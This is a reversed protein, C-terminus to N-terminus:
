VMEELQAVSRGDVSWLEFIFDAEVHLTVRPLALVDTMIRHVENGTLVCGDIPYRWHCAVVTGADLLSDRLRRTLLRLTAEDFNYGLESFIILDFREEPWDDPHVQHEVRVSECKSVRRRAEEVAIVNGDTALMRECRPALAATLEGNSCGLEWCNQFRERQLASVVIARKRREYWRTRFGWPDASKAYFQDCISTREGVNSSIGNRSTRCGCRTSTFGM